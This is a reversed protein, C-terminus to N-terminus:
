QNRGTKLHRLFMERSKKDFKNRWMNRVYEIWLPRPPLPTYTPATFSGSVEGGDLDGMTKRDPVDLPYLGRAHLSSGPTTQSDDVAAFIEMKSLATRVPMWLPDGAGKELAFPTNKWEPPMPTDTLVLKKFLTSSFFSPLCITYPLFNEKMRLRMIEYAQGDYTIIDINKGYERHVMDFKKNTNGFMYITYLMTDANMDAMEQVLCNLIYSKLLCINDEAWYFVYNTEIGDLMKRTDPFWGEESEHFTLVLKHALHASLFDAAAEKHTGRLNIIWRPIDADCFSQFSDKFRQLRANNNIRMNSFVTFPQTRLNDPFLEPM